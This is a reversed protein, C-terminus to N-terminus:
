KGTMKPHVLQNCYPCHVLAKDGTSRWKKNCFPCQFWVTSGPIIFWQRSLVWLVVGSILLVDALIVLYILKFAIAPTLTLEESWLLSLFTSFPDNSVSIQPYTKWVAILLAVIGALCLMLSLAYASKQKRLIKRM